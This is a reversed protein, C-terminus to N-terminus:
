AVGSLFTRRMIGQEVNFLCPFVGTDCAATESRKWEGCEIVAGPITSPQPISDLEGTVEYRSHWTTKFM